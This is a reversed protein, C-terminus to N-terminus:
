VFDGMSSCSIGNELLFESIRLSEAVNIKLLLRIGLDNWSMVFLTSAM